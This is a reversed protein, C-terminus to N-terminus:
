FPLPIMVPYADELYEIGPSSSAQTVSNSVTVHIFSGRCTWPAFIFSDSANPGQFRNPAKVRKQKDILSTASSGSGQATISPPHLSVLLTKSGTGEGGEGVRIGSVRKTASSNGKENM